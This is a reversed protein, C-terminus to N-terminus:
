TGGTKVHLLGKRLLKAERKENKLQLMRLLFFTFRSKNMNRVVHKYNRMWSFLKECVQTDVGDLASLKYPDMMDQCWDGVHNPFHFKDVFVRCENAFRWQITTMKEKIFRVKNLIYRALHCGDDYGFLSPVNGLISWMIILFAYVQSNGESGYLETLGFAIGCTWCIAFVGASRERAGPASQHEDKLTNCSQASGSARSVKDGDTYALSGEIAQLDDLNVSAVGPKKPHLAQRESFFDEVLSPRINSEPEWTDHKSHNWKGGWRIRFERKQLEPNVRVDLLANVLFEGKQLPAYESDSEAGETSADADGEVVLSSSTARTVRLPPLPGRTSNPAESPGGGACHNRCENCFRSRPAPTEQCGVHMVPDGFLGPCPITVPRWKNACLSRRCKM